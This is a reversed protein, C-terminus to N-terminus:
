PKRVLAWLNLNESWLKDEQFGAAALHQRLSELTFGTRHAMTTAGLALFPRFGYLIDLPAVPGAPSEYVTEELQGEAVLKAVAQLDPLTLLLMGGNRLVRLFEALALPVQHSELHELNHSSFVAEVSGDAVPSMDTISAVVDPNVTPDIDLRLECWNPGQFAQHLGSAERSGCGVHLVTLRQLEDQTGETTTDPTTQSEAKSV